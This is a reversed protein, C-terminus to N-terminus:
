REKRVSVQPAGEFSGCVVCAFLGGACFMCISDDHCDGNCVYDVHDWPFGQSTVFEGWSGPKFEKAM